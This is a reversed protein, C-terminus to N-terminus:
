GSSSDADSIGLAGALGILSRLETPASVIRYRGADDIAFAHYVQKSTAPNPCVFVEVSYGAERITRLLSNVSRAM